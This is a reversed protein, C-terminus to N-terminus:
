CPHTAGAEIPPGEPRAFCLVPLACLMILSAVCVAAPFSVHHTLFGALADSGVMGIGYAINYIAYVSAYSGTGRRDVAEALATFTPNLAFAYLVSVATLAAGVGLPNASVTVLPLALAMLLLGGAMTPRLGCRGVVREVVPASLGYFLTAVTFMVGVTSPKVLAVRELHTPLLPELLGWGGVGVAVILAAIRVAPDRLLGVLDPRETAERPPDVLLFVRMLGDLVLVVGGVLFPASRGGWELLYGGGIPGLVSGANSGLMALGMMETRKQPYKQAVVALAATWTAAAAAGQIVRASLLLPFNSQALAFVLMAGMQGLIGWIMPRRRGLRDSLIGFIPTTLMLGLAYGGYMIALEQEDGEGDHLATTLPVLMGYLFSDTFMATGAVILVMLPFSRLRNIWAMMRM